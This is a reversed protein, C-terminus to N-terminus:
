MFISKIFIRENKTTPGRKHRILEKVLEYSM